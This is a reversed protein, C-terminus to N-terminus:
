TASSATKDCVRVSIGGWSKKSSSRLMKIQMRCTKLEVGSVLNVYALQALSYNHTKLFKLNIRSLHVSVCVSQGLSLCISM